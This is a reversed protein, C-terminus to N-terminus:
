PLLPRLLLIEQAGADLLRRGFTQPALFRRKLRAGEVAITSAHRQKAVAVLGSAPNAGLELQWHGNLARTTEELMALAAANAQSASLAIHVVAFGCNLRTALRGCRQILNSDRERAAVGLLLENITGKRREVISTRLTERLALERLANLNETRFFSQLAAEIRPKPYIKGARLRERLTQASADTLIVDDALELIGDPMTERVTVGTLRRVVDNLGELHQVNLTTIVSIGARLVSLVDEYRKAFKSGPANTHALEDILAVQPHRALVAPLDLESYRVGDTVIERRPLAELGELKKATDARGHTEVFAAVVDVGEALLEHARELMAYTKGCGAAAGLYVTLRGYGVRLRDGATRAYPHDGFDYSDGGTAPEAPRAVILVDRDIPARLLEHAVRGKPLAVFSAALDDLRPKSFDFSAQAVVRAGVAAATRALLSADIAPDPLIALDLNFADAFPVVRALFIRANIAPLLLALATSVRAAPLTPVTLDDVARLMIERLARLTQPRLPGQLAREIDERRVIAGARLRAELQEREVDIAIVQDAAKLFSIPVIERIPFGILGEAIPAVTDLHAINMAGIVSIGAERLALADQWRKANKSGPHNTHALEDLVIVQPRAALAADIDFEPFTATGREVVRPPIRPLGQALLDLDTRGKTELWGIVVNSGSQQLQRADSILRYTKGAGPAFSLYVTLRAQGGVDKLLDAAAPRHESTEMRRRRRSASFSKWGSPDACICFSSLMLARRVRKIQTTSRSDANANSKTVGCASTAAMRKVMGTVKLLRTSSRRAVAANTRAASTASITAPHYLPTASPCWHLEIAIAFRTSAANEMTRTPTSPVSAWAAACRLPCTRASSRCASRSCASRLAISVIREERLTSSTARAM